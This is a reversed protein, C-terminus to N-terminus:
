DNGHPQDYGRDYSEKRECFFLGGASGFPKM